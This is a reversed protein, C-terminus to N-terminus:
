SKDIEVEVFDIQERLMEPRKRIKVSVRTVPYRQFVQRVIKNALTEVLNYEQASATQRIVSLVGVYDVSKELSDTAAAQELDSWLALDVQCEQASAREEPTTGIRPYIKVGSLTIKEQRHAL